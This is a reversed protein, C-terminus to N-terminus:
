LARMNGVLKYSIRVKGLSLTPRVTVTPGGPKYIVGPFLLVDAEAAALGNVQQWATHCIRGAGIKLPYSYLVRIRDDTRKAPSETQAQKIRGVTSDHGKGEVSIKM